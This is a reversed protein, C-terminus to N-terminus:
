EGSAMPSDAPPVVRGGERTLLCILSNSDLPIEKGNRTRVLVCGLLVDIVVFVPQASAAMVIRVGPLIGLHELFNLEELRDRLERIRRRKRRRSRRDSMRREWRSDDRLSSPNPGNRRLFHVAMRKGKSATSFM